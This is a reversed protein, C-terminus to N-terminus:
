KKFADCFSFAKDMEQHYESKNTKVKGPLGRGKYDAKEKEQTKEQEDNVDVDSEQDETKAEVKTEVKEVEVKAVKTKNAIIKLQDISFSELDKEEYLDNNSVIELVLSKKTEKYLNQAFELADKDEQSLENCSCDRKEVEIEKTVESDGKRFNDIANSILKVAEDFIESGNDKTEVFDAKVGELMKLVFDKSKDKTMQVVNMKMNARVGCGDAWSCAGESYPLLALHDPLLNKAIDFYEKEQFVGNQMEHTAFYGTSVDMQCDNELNRVLDRDIENARVIDIWAEGKLKADELKCNFIWGVAFKNLIDPHNASVHFGQEDVPHNVTVPVGNWAEPVLEELRVLSGNVVTEKLMVIPVCIFDRGQYSLRKADGPKLNLKFSAFTENESQRNTSLRFTKKM